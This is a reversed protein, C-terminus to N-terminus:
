KRLFVKEGCMRCQVPQGCHYLVDQSTAGCKLCVVLQSDGAFM